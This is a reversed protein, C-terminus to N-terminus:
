YQLKESVEKWELKQEGEQKSDAQWLQLTQKPM